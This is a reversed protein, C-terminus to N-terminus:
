WLDASRKELLQLIQKSDWFCCFALSLCMVWQGSSLYHCISSDQIHSKSRGVQQPIERSNGKCPLQSTEKSCSWKKMKISYSIVNQEVLFVNNQWFQMSLSANEFHIDCLLSVIRSLLKAWYSLCFFNNQLYKQSVIVKPWAPNETQSLAFEKTYNNVDM